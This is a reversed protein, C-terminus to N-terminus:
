ENNKCDTYQQALRERENEELRFVANWGSRFERLEEEYTPVSLDMIFVSNIDTNIKILFKCIPIGREYQKSTGPAIQGSFGDNNDSIILGPHLGHPGKNWAFRFRKNSKGWFIDRIAWLTGIRILAM